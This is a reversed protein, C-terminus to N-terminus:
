PLKRYVCTATLQSHRPVCGDLKKPDLIHFHGTERIGKFEGEEIAGNGDADTLCVAPARKTSVVAAVGTARVRLAVFADM